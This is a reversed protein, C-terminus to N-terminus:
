RKFSNTIQNLLYGKDDSSYEWFMVGGLQHDTVYKCKHAVSWEDDYTIFQKTSSNFLFPAKAEEDKFAIFGKKNILSDKLYTFGKGFQNVSSALTDGLGKEANLKLRLNKGYFAIGM